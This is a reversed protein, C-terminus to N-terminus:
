GTLRGTALNSRFCQQRTEAPRKTTMFSPCARDAPHTGVKTHLLDSVHEESMAPHSSYLVPLEQELRRQFHLSSFVPYRGFPLSVTGLIPESHLWGPRNIYVYESKRKYEFSRLEDRKQTTTNPGKASKRNLSFTPFRLSSVPRCHDTLTTVIAEPTTERSCVSVLDQALLGAVREAEKQL